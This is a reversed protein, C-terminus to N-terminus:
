DSGFLKVIVNRNLPAFPKSRQTTFFTANRVRLQVTM